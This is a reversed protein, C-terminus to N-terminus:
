LDLFRRALAPGACSDEHKFFVFATSAGSKKIRNRWGLLEADSYASRRLRLYLWPAGVALEPVAEDDKDSLVQTAGHAHLLQLVAPDGWSDHVFEFATQIGKPQEDLFARLVDLDCRVFKPLQYFVCGLKDGLPVLMKFLYDLLEGCDVLKNSWTMRRTAKIAFRFTDPVQESWAQVHKESPMRYFTNNLEVSSLQGAYFSLMEAKKLGEPYFAPQWEVYSFGSTGVHIKPDSAM